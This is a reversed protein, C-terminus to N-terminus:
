RACALEPTHYLAATGLKGAGCVVEEDSCMVCHEPNYQLPINCQLTARCLPQKWTTGLQRHGVGNAEASGLTETFAFQFSCLCIM